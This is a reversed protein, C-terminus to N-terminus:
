VNTQKCGKTTYKCRPKYKPQKEFINPRYEIKNDKPFSHITDLDNITLVMKKNEVGSKLFNM